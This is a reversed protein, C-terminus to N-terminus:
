EIAVQRPPEPRDIVGHLPARPWMAEGKEHGLRAGMKRALRRAASIVASDSSHADGVMTNHYCKHGVKMNVGKRIRRAPVLLAGISRHAFNARM